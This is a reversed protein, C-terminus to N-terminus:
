LLPPQRCLEAIRLNAIEVYAADIECGEVRGWGAMFAGIMESGTGAFPTLLVADDRHSLPPLMLRALYETVGLPKVTPHHNRVCPAIEDGIVHHEADHSGCVVCPLHGILGANREGRGPKTQYYFRVASGEDGYTAAATQSPMPSSYGGVNRRQTGAPLFGSSLQGSQTRLLSVPCESVCIWGDEGSGVGVYECRESHVLGVNPPWRGPPSERSERVYKGPRGGVYRGSTIDTGPAQRRKTDAELSKSDWELRCGDIWLAGAGHEVAVQAYTGGRPKRALVVPEWMPKLATGYGSWEQGIVKGLDRSKPLSGGHLWMMTDDLRWGADEVNVALRHFTRTGGFAMLIAGPKCVRLLEAWIAVPPVGRDWTAGGFGIGYPPDCLASVAYEDPMGQLWILADAHELRPQM